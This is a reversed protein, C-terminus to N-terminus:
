GIRIVEEQLKNIETSDGNQRKIIADLRNSAINLQVSDSVYTCVFEVNKHNLVFQNYKVNTDLIVRFLGSKEFNWGNDLAQRFKLLFNEKTNESRLLHIEYIRNMGYISICYIFEEQDEYELLAGRILPRIPVYEVHENENLIINNLVPKYTSKDLERLLDANDEGYNYGASWHLELPAWDDVQIKSYEKFVNIYPILTNRICFVAEDHRNLMITIHKSAPENFVTRCIHEFERFLNVAFLQMVDASTAQIPANLCARVEDKEESLKIIERGFYTRVSFGLRSNVNQKIIDKYKIYQENTTIYSYLNKALDQNLEKLTMYSAGYFVSLIKQKYKPREELFLKENFDQGAHDAATMAVAQYYDGCEDVYKRLETDNSYFMNYMVRLDIQSFDAWLLFHDKPAAIIEKYKNPLNQFSYDSTYIRSTAAKSYRFPVVGLPTDYNTKVGTDHTFYRCPSAKSYISKTEMYHELMEMFMVCYNNDVVRKRVDADFSYILGNKGEKLFVDEPVGESHILFPILESKTIETIPSNQTMLIYRRIMKAMGSVIAEDSHILYDLRNIDIFVHPENTMMTM